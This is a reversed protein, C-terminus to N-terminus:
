TIPKYTIGSIGWICGRELCDELLVPPLKRLNNLVPNPPLLKAGGVTDRFKGSSCSYDAENEFGKRLGTVKLREGVTASFLFSKLSSKRVIIWCGLSPLDEDSLM